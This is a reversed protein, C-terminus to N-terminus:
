ERKFDKAERRKDEREREKKNQNLKDRRKKQM